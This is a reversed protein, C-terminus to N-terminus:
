LDIIKDLGYTYGPLSDIKRIAMILGPYFSTRDTSDHKISLTQGAAGFIVNQHALFGPLRISHIHIGDIFSGRSGELTEVEYEGLRNKNFVKVQAIEEATLISTGSPADKKRDHHLEIIECNDFYKSIMRSVKIMIVAGISFNPVIFVKSKSKEAKKGIDSLEDKKFGTTGAIIDIKNDLAWNITKFSVESNTFDIILDVGLKKVADYNDYIFKGTEGSGTITGIDTGANKTDFGCVLDMDKEKVLERSMSTGMKGCIGFIAIKKM